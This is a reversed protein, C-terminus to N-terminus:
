IERDAASLHKLMKEIQLTSQQDLHEVTRTGAATLSLHRERADKLSTSQRVLKRRTLASLLRSIYGADLELIRRLASATVGPKAGIEYLIRAETLAFEGDLHRRRLLGLKATYFRNFQRIASIQGAFPSTLGDGEPM